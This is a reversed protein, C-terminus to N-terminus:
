SRSSVILSRTYECRWIKKLRGLHKLYRQGSSFSWWLRMSSLCIDSCSIIRSNIISCYDIVLLWVLLWILLIITIYSNWFLLLGITPNEIHVYLALTLTFLPSIYNEITNSILSPINRINSWILFLAVLSIFPLTRIYYFLLIWSRSLDCIRSSIFVLDVIDSLSQLFWLLEFYLIFWRLRFRWSRM